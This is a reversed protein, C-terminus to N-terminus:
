KKGAKKAARKDAAKYGQLARNIKKFDLRTIM